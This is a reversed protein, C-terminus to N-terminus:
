LPKARKMARPHNCPTDPQIMKAHANRKELPPPTMFNPGYKHVLYTHADNPAAYFKGEFEINKIPYIVTDPIADYYGNDEVTQSVKNSKFPSFLLWIFKCIGYVIYNFVVNKRYVVAKDRSRVTFYLLTKRIIYPMKPYYASPFIDMYIGRHYVEKGTEFHHTFTSYCDRLKSFCQKYTKDTEPTQLFIDRPLEAEAIKLFKRYSDMPMSVDLDDDWPIFGKYRVAGLLTGFDIWYVLGHRDCIERLADLLRQQIKHCKILDSEPIM